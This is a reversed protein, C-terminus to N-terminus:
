TNKRWIDGHMVELIISSKNEIEKNITSNDVKRTFLPYM